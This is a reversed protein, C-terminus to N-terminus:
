TFKLRNKTQKFDRVFISQLKKLYTKRPYGSLHLDSVYLLNNVIIDKESSSNFILKKSIKKISDLQFRSKFNPLIIIRDKLLKKQQAIILKPLM